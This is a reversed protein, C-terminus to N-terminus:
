KKNPENLKEYKKAMQEFKIFYEDSKGEKRTESIYQQIDKNRYSELIYGSYYDFVDRENLAGAEEYDNLLEFFGLYNNLDKDDWRGKNKMLLPKHTYIDNEIASDIRNNEFYINLDNVFRSKQIANHTHLQIYIMSIGAVFVVFFLLIVFQTFGIKTEM